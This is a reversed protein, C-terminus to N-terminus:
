TIATSLTTYNQINNFKCGDFLFLNTLSNDSLKVVDKDIAKLNNFLTIENAEFHHCRLFFLNNM